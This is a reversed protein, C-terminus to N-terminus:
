GRKFLLPDWRKADKSIFKNLAKKLSKKVEKNRLSYILPNVMPTLVTYPVSFVKKLNRLASTDPLIYVIMLTGYFITVVILHSSYTAFAKQRGTVSPIKLVTAIICVYSTITILFPPLIDISGFILSLLRVHSTDSCSLQLLPSFDCFFHDIEEPGCFSLQSVLSIIVILIFAACLWSVVMLHCIVRGNMITAYYLPKCIAVYRDYSMISLLYCEISVLRGFCFLQTFCGWVSISRDGTLFIILMKPLITSSYFVELSSLNALFYYMPTHLNQNFVVLNVILINGSMTLIYIVVFVLFLLLHYEQLEGFGLLIFETIATQKPWKEFSSTQM